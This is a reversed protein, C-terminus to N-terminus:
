ALDLTRSAQFRDTPTRVEDTAFTVQARFRGRTEPGAPWSARGALDTREAETGDAAVQFWRIDLGPLAPTELRVQRGAGTGETKLNDILNVRDLFRHWMNERDVSCFDMSRMDRM